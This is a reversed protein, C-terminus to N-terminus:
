VRTARRSQKAQVFALQRLLDNVERLLKANRESYVGHHSLARYAAYDESWNEGSCEIAGDIPQECPHAHIHTQATSVGALVTTVGM